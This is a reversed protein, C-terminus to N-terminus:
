GAGCAWEASDVVSEARTGLQELRRLCRWPEGSSRSQRSRRITGCRHSPSTKSHEQLLWEVLGVGSCGSPKSSNTATTM